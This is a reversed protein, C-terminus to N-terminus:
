LKNKLDPFLRKFKKPISASIFVEKDTIPHKFKLSHAHLFLGNGKGNLGEEGYKLDGFIPSGMNAMHIRLQHRRGTKPILKVLNLFGYKNSEKKQLIKFITKCPKSDIRSEIIGEEQLMGITIALYEKNITKAEFMSNLAILAKSTKGILLAGSTPYDLRHVPEPRALADIISSTELLNPLGNELTYKKNGSVVIGAPKNVIALYEDEYLVEIDINISPKKNEIDQKYLDITEGGNIYDGTYGIDGNIIVLGKKIAKKIGKKSTITQFVGPTYDSLRIRGSLKPVTHTEIKIPHKKPEM